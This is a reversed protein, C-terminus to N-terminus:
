IYIHNIMCNDSPCAWTYAHYVFWRFPGPHKLVKEHPPTPPRPTSRQWALKPYMSLPDPSQLGYNFPAQFVKPHVPSMELVRGDVVSYTRPTSVNSLSSYFKSSVTHRTGTPTIDKNSVSKTRRAPSRGPSKKRSSAKSRDGRRGSKSKSKHPKEEKHVQVGSIIGRAAAKALIDKAAEKPDDAQLFYLVWMHIFAYM